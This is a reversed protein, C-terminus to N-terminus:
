FNSNRKVIILVEESVLTEDSNKNKMLRCSNNPHYLNGHEDKCARFLNSTGAVTYKFIGECGYCIPMGDVEVFRLTM